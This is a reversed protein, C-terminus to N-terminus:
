KRGRSLLYAGVVIAVGIIAAIPLYPIEAQTEEKRAEAPKRMATIVGTLKM